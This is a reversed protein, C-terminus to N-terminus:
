GGILLADVVEFRADGVTVIQIDGDRTVSLKAGGDAESEDYRIIEGNEFYLVRSGTDPWFVFLAGNGNGERVVGADCQGAGTGPRECNIISSATFSSGEPLVGGVPREYNPMDAGGSVGGSQLTALQDSGDVFFETLRLEKAPFGCRVEAVYNGLDLTGGATRSGDVRPDDARMDAVADFNNFFQRAADACAGAVDDQASAPAALILCALSAGIVGEPLRRRRISQTSQSM